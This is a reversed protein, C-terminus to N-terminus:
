GARRVLIKDIRINDMDIVEMDLGNWHIKEGVTPIHNLLKLMLGAVTNTDGSEFEENLEIDFFMRFEALPYDGDVLWSGDKRQLIQAAMRGAEYVDGVLAQLIDDLTIIGLVIGYEDVVLGYYTNASKFKKLATYASTTETLFHAPRLLEKIDMRNESVARFLDKLFVVGVINDKDQSYVPYVRHLKSDITKIIQQADDELRLYAIDSRNTMLSTIRRDGLAFVREVINAEITQVEGGKTGEEIIAKIEEETVRTNRPKINLLRVLGESTETLIWVFPHAIKSLIKMLPALASSIGEPNSLGIRKPVLEGLVLTFFTVAILVITVALGDAVPRVVPFQMLWDELRNTFNEGSYIGTLLGVLTIGIQITSLFRTPSLALEMATRAGSRGKKIAAELRVKRSSVLAMESMSFLGNLLILLLIVLWEM